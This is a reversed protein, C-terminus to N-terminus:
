QSVSQGTYEYIGPCIEELKRDQGEVTLFLNPLTFRRMKVEGSGTTTVEVSRQPLQAGADMSASQGSGGWSEERSGREHRPAGSGTKKVGTTTTTTPGGDQPGSTSPDHAGTKSNHAGTNSDHAGGSSNPDGITSDSGKTPCTRKVRTMGGDGKASTQANCDETVSEKGVSEGGEHVNMVSRVASDRRETAAATSTAATADRVKMEVDRATTGRVHTNNDAVVGTSPDTVTVGMASAGSSGRGKGKENTGAKHNDQNLVNKSPNSVGANGANTVSEVTEAVDSAQSSVSAPVQHPLPSTYTNAVPTMHGTVAAGRGAVAARPSSTIGETELAASLWARPESPPLTARDECPM